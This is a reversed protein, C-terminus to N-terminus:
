ASWARVSGRQLYSILTRVMTGTAGAPGLDTPRNLYATTAFDLHAWPIGATFPELFLGAIIADAHEGGDNRADAVDSRLKRTYPRWLPLEWLPEDNAAGVEILSRVLEPSSGLVGTLEEGLAHMVSYTLTAADIMVEPRKESLYALADALVLRGECDTDTVETTRGNRHRLVDGPRTAHGGVMNEAAPIVTSVTVPLGLRAAAQTVALMTAGGAMDSKMDAMAKLSKIDLGGSDFTIGKGALGIHRDGGRYTVEILCPPNASGAGVGLIGGFGGRELDDTGLVSVELGTAKAREALLMPTLDGGPTNVLDRAFLVADAIIGARQADGEGFVVLEKIARGDPRSKYGDFLYGGLRVGEIVEEAYPLGVAVRAFDKLRPALRGMLRRVEHEDGPDGVVLLARAEFPDGERRPLLAEGGFRVSDLAAGLGLERARSVPLVLLDAPVQVPQLPSFSVDM